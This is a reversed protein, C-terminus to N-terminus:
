DEYGEHAVAIGRLAYDRGRLYLNRARGRLARSQALDSAEILESKNQLLYAYATFGNAASLLLGRHNPSVDLLSEYTKLGFPIAVLILEPDNDSAYVGTGGSLADGLVNVAMQKVSCGALTGGLMALVLLRAIDGM